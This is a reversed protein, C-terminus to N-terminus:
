HIPTNGFSVRFKPNRSGNSKASTVACTFYLVFGEAKLECFHQSSVCGATLINLLSFINFQTVPFM